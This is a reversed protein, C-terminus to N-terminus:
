LKGKFSRFLEPKVKQLAINLLDFMGFQYCNMFNCLTELEDPTITPLIKNVIDIAKKINHQGEDTYKDLENQYDQYKILNKENNM